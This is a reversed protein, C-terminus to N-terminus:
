ADKKIWEALESIRDLTLADEVRFEGIATRRLESLHGRSELRDGMDRALSRIYTGKSCRVLFKAEPPNFDLVDFRNVQVKRAEMKVEKGERALQYARKGNKHIASYVPPVQEIEGVFLDAENRIKDLDIQEVPGRELPEGEADDTTTSLGFCIRGTYEKELGMFQEVLKTAKQVCVILLGTAMPDLTGAHGMKKVKLIKRLKRIVDFSTMGRDKDVLLVTGGPVERWAKM